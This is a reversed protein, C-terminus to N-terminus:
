ELHQHLDADPGAGAADSAPPNRLVIPATPTGFTSVIKNIFDTEQKSLWGRQRRCTACALLRTSRIVALRSRCKPCADPMMVPLIQAGYQSM